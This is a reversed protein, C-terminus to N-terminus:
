WASAWMGASSWLSRFSPYPSSLPLLSDGGGKKNKKENIKVVEAAAIGMGVGLIVIVPLTIILLTVATYTLGSWRKEKEHLRVVGEAAPSL